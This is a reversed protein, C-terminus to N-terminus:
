RRNRRPPIGTCSSKFQPARKMDSSSANVSRSDRSKQAPEVIHGIFEHGPVGPERIWKPQGNGGWYRPAGYWAKVDSTCVSCAEIEIVVENPGAAPIPVSELKLQNPGYEVVPIM